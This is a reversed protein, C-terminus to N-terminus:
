AFPNAPRSKLDEDNPIPMDLLSTKTGGIVNIKGEKYDQILSEALNKNQQIREEVTYERPEVDGGLKYPEILEPVKPSEEWIDCAAARLEAEYEATWADHTKDDEIAAEKAKKKMMAACEAATVEKGTAQDVGVVTDPTIPQKKEPRTITETNKEFVNEEVTISIGFTLNLLEKAVTATVYYEREKRNWKISKEQKDTLELSDLWADVSRGKIKAITKLASLPLLEEMKTYVAIFKEIKTNFNKM